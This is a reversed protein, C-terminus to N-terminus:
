KLDMLFASDDDTKGKVISSKVIRKSNEKSNPHCPTVKSKDCIDSKVTEFTVKSKDSIDSKVQSMTDSKIAKWPYNFTYENHNNGYRGGKRIKNVSIIGKATVSKILRVVQRRSVAMDKALLNQGLWCSRNKENMRHQLLYLLHRENSSLGLRNAIELIDSTYPYGKISSGQKKKAM